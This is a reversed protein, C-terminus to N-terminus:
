GAIATRGNRILIEHVQANTLSYRSKKWRANLWDALTDSSHGWERTDWESLIIAIVPADPAPRTTTSTNHHVAAHFRPM